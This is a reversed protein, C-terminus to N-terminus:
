KISELVYKTDVYYELQHLLKLVRDRSEGDTNKFRVFLQAAIAARQNDNLVTLEDREHTM